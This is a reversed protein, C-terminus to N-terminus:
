AAQKKVFIEDFQAEFGPNEKCARMFEETVKINKLYCENQLMFIKMDHTSKQLELRETKVRQAEFGLDAKRKESRLKLLDNLCKHFARDHTTKYRKYLNFQKEDTALGTDPNIYTDQLRQSRRSLWESEVMRNVLIIETETVPKHEDELSKKLSAFAAPDESTLIKFNTNDHRALGHITHNQASINRTAESKAGTSHQANARNAALRAESPTAAGQMEPSPNDAVPPASAESASEPSQNDDLSEEEAAVAPSAPTPQQHDQKRAAKRALREAARRLQRAESAM